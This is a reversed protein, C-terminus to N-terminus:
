PILVIRETGDIDQWASTVDRLPVGRADIRLAGSTIAEVIAALEALLFEALGGLRALTGLFCCPRALL